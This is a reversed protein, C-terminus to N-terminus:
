SKSSLEERLKLRTQMNVKYLNFTGVAFAVAEQSEADVAKGSIVLLSRGASQITTSAILTQGMKAPKLFNVKLEVTSTSMGKSMAHALARAGLTTDLLTTIAGGHSVGPAGMQAQGIEMTCRIEEDAFDFKIGLLTILGGMTELAEAINEITM